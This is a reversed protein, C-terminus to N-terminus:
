AWPGFVISSKLGLGMKSQQIPIRVGSLSPAGSLGRFRLRAAIILFSRALATVRWSSFLPRGLIGYAGRPWVVIWGLVWSAEADPVYGAIGIEKCCRQKTTDLLAYKRSRAFPNIAPCLLENSVHYHVILMSGAKSNLLSPMYAVWAARVRSGSAV